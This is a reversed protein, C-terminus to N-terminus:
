SKINHWVCTQGILRTGYMNEKTVLYRLLNQSLLKFIKDEKAEFAM